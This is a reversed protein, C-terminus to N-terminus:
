TIIIPIWIKIHFDNFLIPFLMSYLLSFLNIFVVIVKILYNRYSLLYYYPILQVIILNIYYIFLLYINILEDLICYYFM